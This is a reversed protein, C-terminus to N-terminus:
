RRGRPPPAPCATVGVTLEPSEGSKGASDTAVVKFTVTAEASYPGLTAEWHDGANTMAADGQSTRAVVSSLASVANVTSTVRTASPAQDCPAVAIAPSEVLVGAVEPGKPIEAAVDFETITGSSLVRVTTVVQGEPATARDLSLALEASEGAALEGGPPSVVLWPVDLEVRYDARRDTTNRLAVSGTTQDTGLDVTRPDVKLVAALTTATEDVAETGDSGVLRWGILGGAGAVILLVAVLLAWRRRKRATEEAEVEAKEWLHGLAERLAEPAPRSPIADLMSTVPTLALRRDTCLSCEDLHAGVSEALQELDDPAPEGLAERLRPCTDHGIRALVYHGLVRDARAQSGSVVDDAMRPPVGLAAALDDGELERRLALDLAARDAPELGDLVALAISEIMPIPLEDPAPLEEDINVVASEPPRALMVAEMRVQRFLDAVDVTDPDIGSLGTRVAEDAARPDWTVTLAFDYLADVVEPSLASSGNTSGPPAAPAPM